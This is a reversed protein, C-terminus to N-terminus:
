FRNWDFKDGEKHSYYGAIGLPILTLFFGVVVLTRGLKDWNQTEEFSFYIFLFYVVGYIGAIIGWMHSRKM